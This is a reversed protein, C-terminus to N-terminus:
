TGSLCKSLFHFTSLRVGPVSGSFSLGGLFSNSIYVKTKIPWSNTHKIDRQIDHIQKRDCHMKKYTFCIDTFIQCYSIDLRDLTVHCSQIRYKFGKGSILIAGFIYYITMPHHQVMQWLCFPVVQHFRKVYLNFDQERTLVRVKLYLKLLASM